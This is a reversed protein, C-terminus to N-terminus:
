NQGFPPRPNWENILDMCGDILRNTMKMGGNQGQMEFEVKGNFSTGKYTITGSGKSEPCEVAWKVTDGEVRQEIVKCESGDQGRQEPLMAEKMLCQEFTMAPLQMPMGVIETKTEIRWKGEKMDVANAHVGLFTMLVVSLMAFRM